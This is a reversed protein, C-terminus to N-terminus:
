SEGEKIKEIHLVYRAGRFEFFCPYRKPDAVRMADFQEAITKHVDLRSDEPKRRAYYTSGTTPQPVPKVTAINRLAFDMLQLEAAFIGANIEDALESGDFTVKCKHWIAGADVEDEADLLSVTVHDQGELIQWIHPSWGKGRPLDSAHLVLTHRYNDRTSKSVIENCSVLFLIDGGLADASSYIINVEHDSANASQWRTMYEVVPHGPDSMLIDIKM